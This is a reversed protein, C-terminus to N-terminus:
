LHGPNCNHIIICRSPQLGELSTSLLVMKLSFLISLGTVQLPLAISPLASILSEGQMLRISLPRERRILYDSTLPKIFNERRQLLQLDVDVGTLEEVQPQRRMLGVLTCEACGM